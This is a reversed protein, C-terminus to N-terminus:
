ELFKEQLIKMKNEDCHLEEILYNKLSGYQADISDLVDCFNKVSVGVMAYIAEIETETCGQQKAKAVTQDILAQYYANSLAFDKVILDRDAGLAALLFASAWGTRDKGQSCHWLVGQGEPLNAIQDLFQTYNEQIKYDTAIVRYMSNVLQQIQPMKLISILADTKDTTTSPKANKFSFASSAIQKELCPLWINECGNITKDPADNREVSSRLDFVKNLHYKEELLRIDEDTAESLNGSRIFVDQRITKGNIKYGGLQRANAVGQLNIAQKELTLEQNMETLNNQATAAISYFLISLLSLKIAKM